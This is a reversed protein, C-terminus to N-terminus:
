SVKQIQIFEDNNGLNGKAIDKESDDTLLDAEVIPQNGVKHFEVAAIKAARSAYVAATELDQIVGIGHQYRYQLRYLYFM